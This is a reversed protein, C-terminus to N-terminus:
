NSCKNGLGQVFECRSSADYSLNQAKTKGVLSRSLKQEFEFGKSHPPPSVSARQFLRRTSHTTTCICADKHHFGGRWLDLHRAWDGRYLEHQKDRRRREEATEAKAKSLSKRFQQFHAVNYDMLEKNFLEASESMQKGIVFRLKNKIVKAVNICMKMYFSGSRIYAALSFLKATFDQSIWKKLANESLHNRHSLCLQRFRALHADRGLIFHFLNKMGPPGTSVSLM